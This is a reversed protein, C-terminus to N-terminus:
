PFSVKRGCSIQAKSSVVGVNTPLIIIADTSLGLVLIHRNPCQSTLIIKPLTRLRHQSPGLESPSRNNATFGGAHTIVCVYRDITNTDYAVGCVEFTPNFMNVRHGRNSVGDDVIPQAVTEIGTDPGYSISEGFTRLWFGNRLVRGDSTIGDSGDHGTAGKPGQDNVHDQAATVLGWNKTSCPLTAM